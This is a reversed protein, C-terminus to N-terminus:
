DCSAQPDALELIVGPRLVRTRVYTTEKTVETGAGKRTRGVETFKMAREKGYTRKKGKFEGIFTTQRINQTM